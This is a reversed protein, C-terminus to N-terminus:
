DEKLVIELMEALLPSALASGKGIYYLMSVGELAHITLELERLLTVLDEKTLDALEANDVKFM